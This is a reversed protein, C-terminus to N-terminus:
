KTPKPEQARPTSLDNSPNTGAVAGRHLRMSVRREQIEGAAGRFRPSATLVCTCKCKYIM